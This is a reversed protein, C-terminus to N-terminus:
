SYRGNKKEWIYKFDGEECSNINNLLVVRKLLDKMLDYNPNEEFGLDRSYNLLLEFETPMGDCIMKTSIRRKLEFIIRDKSILSEEDQQTLEKKRLLKRNLRKYIM